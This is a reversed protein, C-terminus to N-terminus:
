RAGDKRPGLALTATADKLATLRVLLDDREALAIRFREPDFSDEVLAEVEAIYNDDIPFEALDASWERMAPGLHEFMHRIGGQGGGAQLSAMPGLLAWRLGPGNSMAIDLDAASIVGTRVLHIAERWVAVQLRNAVHGPLEARVRVPRKGLGLYVEMTRDVVWEATQAGGIVEVLPMLHPPNFPHGLVIREPHLSTAQMESVSLGSSSSAIIVETGAASEINTLLARKLDLREPGSEQIFAAGRVADATSTAFRLRKISANASLGIEVLAPWAATIQERLRAEAAPGPDYAVVDYGRALFLAAWSGGILGTGIVAVHGGKPEVTNM